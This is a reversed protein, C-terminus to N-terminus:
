INVFRRLSTWLSHTGDMFAKKWSGGVIPVPKKGAYKWTNKWSWKSIQHYVLSSPFVVITGSKQTALSTSM